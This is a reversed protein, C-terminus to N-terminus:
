NWEKLSENGMEMERELKLIILKSNDRSNKKKSKIRWKNGDEQNGRLHKLETDKKNCRKILSNNKEKTKISYALIRILDSTRLL